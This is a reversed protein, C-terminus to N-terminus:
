NPYTNDILTTNHTGLQNNPIPLAMCKLSSDNDSLAPSNDSGHVLGVSHGTEHCAQGQSPTSTLWTVYHQDCKTSSVADDCGAWGAAGGPTDSRSQYIIDTEAGGSYSHSAVFEVNLDTPAFRNNLVWAINSKGTSSISSERWVTLDPARTSGQHHDGGNSPSLM